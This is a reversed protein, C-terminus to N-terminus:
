HFFGFMGKTAREGTRGTEVILPSDFALSSHCRCLDLPNISPSFSRVIDSPEQSKLEELSLPRPKRRFRELDIPQTSNHTAAHHVPTTRTSWQEYRQEWQGCVFLGGTLSPTGSHELCGMPQWLRDLTSENKAVLTNWFWAGVKRPGVFLKSM